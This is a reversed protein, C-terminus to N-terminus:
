NIAFDGYTEPNHILEYAKSQFSQPNSLRNPIELIHNEDYIDLIEETHIHILNILSDYYQSIILKPNMHVQTM